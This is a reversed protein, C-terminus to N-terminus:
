SDRRLASSEGGPTAVKNRVEGPAEGSAILKSLGVMCSAAMQFAKGREVGERVAGEVLGEVAVSLFALGGATMTAGVAQMHEPWMKVQGVRMFLSYVANLPAPPHGRGPEEGILSVSERVGASTGATVRVVHCRRGKGEGEEEEEEGTGHYIAGYLKAAPVGGVVSVLTKGRLAAAMGPAALVPRYAHPEVGLIVVDGREAGLVNQDALVTVLPDHSFKATLLAASSPRHVCATLSTPTIIAPNAPPSQTDTTGPIPSPPRFDTPNSNTLSDLIGQLIASSLKGPHLTLTTPPTLKTPLNPDAYRLRPLHDEHTDNRSVDQDQM